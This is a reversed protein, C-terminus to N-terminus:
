SATRATVQAVQWVAIPLGLVPLFRLDPAPQMYHDGGSVSLLPSHTPGCAWVRPSINEPQSTHASASVVSCTPIPLRRFARKDRRLAAEMTDSYHWRVRLRLRHCLSVLLVWELHRAERAGEGDVRRADGWEGGCQGGAAAPFGLKNVVANRAYGM